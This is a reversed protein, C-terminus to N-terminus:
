FLAEALEKNLMAGVLSGSAVANAVSRMMSASDGCAYVGEVGTQGFENVKIHGMETFTCGLNAPIDTHQKFPLRVYLADLALDQGNDLRLTSLYGKDHILATVRADIVAIERRALRSRQETGLDAAGGNTIVVLEKTLNYVLPAMHMAVEGTALIGTRRSRFEYGHCYPCHIASIGWCAALGPVEPMIDKIGTALVIKSASYCMGSEMEVVFGAEGPKAAAARGNAFSVTSYADLQQRAIASIAGPSKGDQTLFNHSHPTQRNCPQGDDIVLVNRLSRGLSLAASLGAYSGGIIIVDYNGSGNM